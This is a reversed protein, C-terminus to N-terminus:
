SAEGYPAEERELASMPHPNIPARDFIREWQKACGKRGCTEGGPIRPNGCSCRTSMDSRRQHKM